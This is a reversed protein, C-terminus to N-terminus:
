RDDLALRAESERWIVGEGTSLEQRRDRGQPNSAESGGCSDLSALLFTWHSPEVIAGISGCIRYIGSVETSRLSLCM